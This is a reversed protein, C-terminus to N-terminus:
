LPDHNAFAKTFNEVGENTKALDPFFPSFSLFSTCTCSASTSQSYTLLAAASPDLHSRVRASIDLCVRM